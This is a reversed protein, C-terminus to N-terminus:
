VSYPDCGTARDADPVGYGIAQLWQKPENSMAPAFVNLQEDDLPHRASNVIFAKLMSCIPCRRDVDPRARNASAQASCSSRGLKNRELVDVSADVSAHRSPRQM